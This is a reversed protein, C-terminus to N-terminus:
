HFDQCSRGNRRDFSSQSDFKALVKMMEDRMRVRHFRTMCSVSFIISSFLYCGQNGVFEGWSLPFSMSHGLSLPNIKAIM